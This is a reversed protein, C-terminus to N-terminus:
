NKPATGKSEDEIQDPRMQRYIEQLKEKMGKYKQYEELEHKADEPRGTERYVASLRFHAVASTPDLQIAHELLPQAKQPQDM